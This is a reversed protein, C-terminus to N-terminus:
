KLSRFALSQPTGLAVLASSPLYLVTHQSSYSVIANVESCIKIDVSSCYYASRRIHELRMQIVDVVNLVLQMADLINRTEQAM